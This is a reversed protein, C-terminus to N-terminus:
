GSCELGESGVDRNETRQLVVEARRIYATICILGCIYVGSIESRQERIEPRGGRVGSGQERQGIGTRLGVTLELM